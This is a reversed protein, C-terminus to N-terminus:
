CYWTKDVLIAEIRALESAFESFRQAQHLEKRLALFEKRLTKCTSFDQCYNLKSMKEALQAVKNKLPDNSPASRMQPAAIIIFPLDAHSKKTAAISLMYKLRSQLINLKFLMETRILDCDKFLENIFVSVDPNKYFDDNKFHLKIKERLASRGSRDLPQFCARLTSLFFKRRPFCGDHRSYAGHSFLAELRYCALEFERDLEHFINEDLPNFFSRSSDEIWRTWIFGPARVPLSCRSANWMLPPDYHDSICSFIAEYTPKCKQYIFHDKGLEELLRFVIKLSAAAKYICFPDQAVDILFLKANALQEEIVLVIHKEMDPRNEPLLHPLSRIICLIWGVTYAYGEAAEVRETAHQRHPSQEILRIRGFCGDTLRRILDQQQRTSDAEAPSSSDSSMRLASRANSFCPPIANVSM